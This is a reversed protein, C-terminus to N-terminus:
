QLSEIGFLGNRDLLQAYGVIKEASSDEWGTQPCFSQAPNLYQTAKAVDGRKAGLASLRANSLAADIAYSKETFWPTWHGKRRDILALFGKIAEERTSDSGEALQMELYASYYAKETVDIGLAYGKHSEWGVYYGGAVGVAFALLFSAIRIGTKM